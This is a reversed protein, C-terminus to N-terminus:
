KPSCSRWCCSPGVLNPTGCAVTDPGGCRIVQCDPLCCPMGIVWKRMGKINQRSQLSLYSLRWPPVVILSISTQTAMGHRVEQERTPHTNTKALCPTGPVLVTQPSRKEVPARSASLFSHGIGIKLLVSRLNGPVTSFAQM